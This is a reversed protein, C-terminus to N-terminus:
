DKKSSKRGRVKAIKESADQESKAKESTEPSQEEALTEDAMDNVEPKTEPEEKVEEKTVETVVPKVLGRSVVNEFRAKEFDVEDGVHYVTNFHYKDHFEQLVIGKM